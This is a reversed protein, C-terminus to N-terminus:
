IPQADVWTFLTIKDPLGKMNMECLRLILRILYVQAQTIEYSNISLRIAKHVMKHRIQYVNSFVTKLQEKDDVTGGIIKCLRNKSINVMDNKRDDELM